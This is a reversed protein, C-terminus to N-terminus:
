DHELWLAVEHERRNVLIPNDGTGQGYKWRRMQAPVGAYDPPSEFTGNRDRDGNLIALLTSTKFAQEGVNFCFSVLAHFQNQTLPVRVYKNVANIAWKCDKAFLDYVQADSITQGIFVDPGTHGIGITLTGKVWDGPKLTLHPRADDYAVNRKGEELEMFKYFRETPQMALEPM